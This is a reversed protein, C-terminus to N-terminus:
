LPELNQFRRRATSAFASALVSRACRLTRSRVASGVVVCRGDPAALILLGSRPTQSRSLCAGANGDEPRELPERVSRHAMFARDSVEQNAPVGARTSSPRLIAPRRPRRGPGSCAGRLRVEQRALTPVDPRDSAAGSAVYGTRHSAGARPGPARPQPRPRSGRGSLGSGTPRGPDVVARLGITPRPSRRARRRRRSPSRARPDEDSEPEPAEDPRGLPDGGAVVRDLDRGRAAAEVAPERRRDVRM